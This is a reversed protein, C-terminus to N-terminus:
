WRNLHTRSNAPPVANGESPQQSAVALTCGQYGVTNAQLDFHATSSQRAVSRPQSAPTAQFAAAAALGALVLASRQMDRPWGPSRRGIREGTMVPTGTSKVGLM